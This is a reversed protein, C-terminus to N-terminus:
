NMLEIKSPICEVKGIRKYKQIIQSGMDRNRCKLTSCQFMWAPHDAKWFITIIILSLASYLTSCRYNWSKPLSLCSSWKLRTQAVYHSGTELSLIYFVFVIIFFSWFSMSKLMRHMTEKNCIERYENAVIFIVNCLLIVMHGCKKSNRTMVPTQQGSLCRFYSLETNNELLRGEGHEWVPLLYVLLSVFSTVQPNEM